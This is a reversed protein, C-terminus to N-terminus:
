QNNCISKKRRRMEKELTGELPQGFLMASRDDNDAEISHPPGARGEGANRIQKRDMGADTTSSKSVIEHHM